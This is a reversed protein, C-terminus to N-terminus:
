GGSRIVAKAAAIAEQVRWAQQPQLADLEREIARIQQLTTAANASAIMQVALEEGVTPERQPKAM